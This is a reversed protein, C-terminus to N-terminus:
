TLMLVNISSQFLCSGGFHNICHVTHVLTLLINLCKTFIITSKLLEMGWRRNGYGHKWHCHIGVAATLWSKELSLQGEGWISIECLLSKVNYLLPVNVIAVYSVSVCLLASGFLDYIIDTSFVHIIHFCVYFRAPFQQVDQRETQGCHKMSRVNFTGPSSSSHVVM